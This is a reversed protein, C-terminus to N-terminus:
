ILCGATRVDDLMSHGTPIPWVDLHVGEPLIKALGSGLRDTVEKVDAGYRLVVVLGQSPADMVAPAFM